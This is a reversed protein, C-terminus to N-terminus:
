VLMVQYTSLLNKIAGETVEGANQSVVYRTSGIGEEVEETVNLNRASMSRTYGAALAIATRIPEPVDSGNDGYGAVFVVTITGAVAPWGHVPVVYPRQGQVLKYESANIVVPLGSANLYSIETVSQVPILPLRFKGGDKVPWCDMNAMWTQTILARGLYGDAGDIRQRAAMIYADMVEDSVESGINLRAKAEAATLPENVPPDILILRLWPYPVATV